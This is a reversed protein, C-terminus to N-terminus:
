RAHCSLPADNTFALKSLVVYIGINRGTRHLRRAAGKPMVESKLEMTSKGDVPVGGFNLLMYLGTFFHHPELRRRDPTWSQTHHVSNSVSPLMYCVYGAKSQQFGMFDDDEFITKPLSIKTEWGGSFIKPPFSGTQKSVRGLQKKTNRQRGAFFFVHVSFSQAWEWVRYSAWRRLILGWFGFMFFCWSGIYRALFVQYFLGFWGWVMM